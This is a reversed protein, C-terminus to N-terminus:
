ESRPNTTIRIRKAVPEDGIEKLDALRALPLRSSRLGECFRSKTRRVRSLVLFLLLGSELNSLLSNLKLPVQWSRCIWLIAM